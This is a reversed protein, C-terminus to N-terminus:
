ENPPAEVRPRLFRMVWAIAICGIAAYRWRADDLRVGVAFAILGAAVFGLKVKTLTTM